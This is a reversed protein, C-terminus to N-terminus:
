FYQFLKFNLHFKIKACVKKQCKLVEPAILAQPNIVNTFKSNIKDIKLIQSIGYDSIKVQWGNTM